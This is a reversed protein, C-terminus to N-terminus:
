TCEPPGIIYPEVKIYRTGQRRGGQPLTGSRSIATASEKPRREKFDLQYTKQRGDHKAQHIHTVGFRRDQLQPIRPCAQTSDKRIDGDKRRRTTTAGVEM